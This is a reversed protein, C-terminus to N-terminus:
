FLYELTYALRQKSGITDRRNYRKPELRHQLRQHLENFHDPKMHFDKYFVSEYKTMDDFQFLCKRKVKKFNTIHKVSYECRQFITRKSITRTFISQGMNKEAKEEKKGLLIGMLAVSVGVLCLFETQSNM